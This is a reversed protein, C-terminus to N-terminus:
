KTPQLDHPRDHAFAALAAISIFLPQAGLLTLAVRISYADGVAGTLWPIVFGGCAGSAAVLGVATAAASPMRGAGLTIAVPYVPGLVLGAIATVLALPGLSLWASLCLVCAAIAGSTVLLQRGADARRVLMSLRGILLGLWFTSISWQGVSEPQGRSLAWPVALLTLGTEVGVYAFTVLMLAALARAARLGARGRGAEAGASRVQAATRPAGRLALGGLSLGAHAWALAHFAAQWGGFQLGARV